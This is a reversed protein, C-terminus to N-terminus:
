IGYDAYQYWGGDRTRGTNETARTRSRSSHRRTRSPARRSTPRHRDASPDPMYGAGSSMDAGFRRGLGETMLDIDAFASALFSDVYDPEHRSRRRREPRRQFFPDNAFPDGGFGRQLFPDAFPDGGFDSGPVRGGM